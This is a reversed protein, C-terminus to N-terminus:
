VSCITPLTLHTYSVALIHPFFLTLPEFVGNSYQFAYQKDLGSRGADLDSKGRISENSYELISWIEGFFTGIAIIAAVVLLSIRKIFFVIKKKNYFYILQTVGYFILIFLTYYTIQLHNLRLQLALAIATVM